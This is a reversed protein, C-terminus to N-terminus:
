MDPDKRLFEAFRRAALPLTDWRAWALAITREPRETIPRVALDQGLGALMLGYVASVGLGQRVMALISYDDTVMYEVRPILGRRQFADLLISDEGEDLLIFPEAALRALPVSDLAALPHDRPLVAMMADRRLTETELDRIIETSVFGLDVSGDRIWRSISTYEGQRLVFRVSPYRAKFAEMRAPLLNRSVSTFTGISVLSNELGAVERRKGELAHEAGAIAQIYPLFQRGDPTLVLGDRRRDLLTVGLEQELAKVTQSVSSQSYGIREAARTFGGSELVQCFIAYRSLM